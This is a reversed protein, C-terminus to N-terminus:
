ESFPESDSELREVRKEIKDLYVLKEKLWNYKEWLAEWVTSYAMTDWKEPYNLERKILEEIDTIKKKIDSLAKKLEGLQTKLRILKKLSM